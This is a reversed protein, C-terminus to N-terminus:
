SIGLRTKLQNVFEISAELSGSSCWQRYFLDPKLFFQDCLAIATAAFAGNLLSNKCVWGLAQAFIDDLRSIINHCDLPNYNCPGFYPAGSIITLRPGYNVFERLNKTKELKLQFESDLGAVTCERIFELARKHTILDSPDTEGQGRKARLRDRLDNDIKHPCLYILTIALHLLSYYATITASIHENEKLSRIAISRFAIGKALSAMANYSFIATDQEDQSITSM